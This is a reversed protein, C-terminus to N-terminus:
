FIDSKIYKLLTLYMLLCPVTIVRAGPSSSRTVIVTAVTSTAPVTAATGIRSASLPRSRLTLAGADSESDLSVMARPANSLYVTSLIAFSATWTTAISARRSVLDSEPGVSTPPRARSNGLRSYPVSWRPTTRSSPDITSSFPIFNSTAPSRPLVLAAVVTSPSSTTFTMLVPWASSFPVRAPLM